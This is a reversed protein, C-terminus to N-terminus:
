IYVKLDVVIVVFNTHMRRAGGGGGGGYGGEVFVVRRSGLSKALVWLM